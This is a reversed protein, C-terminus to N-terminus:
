NKKEVHKGDTINAIVLWCIQRLKRKSRCWAEFGDMTGYLQQIYVSIPLASPSHVETKLPIPTQLFHHHTYFLCTFLIYIYLLERM